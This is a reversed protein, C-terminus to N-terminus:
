PAASLHGCPALCLSQGRVSRSEPGPEAVGGSSKRGAVQQGRNGQRDAPCQWGGGPVQSPSSLAGPSTVESLRHRTLGVRFTSFGPSQPDGTMTPLVWCASPRRERPCPASPQLFPEAVGRPRPEVRARCLAQGRAGRGRWGCGRSVPRQPGGQKEPWGHTGARGRPGEPRLCGRRLGRRPAM